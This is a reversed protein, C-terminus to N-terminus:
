KVLAAAEPELAALAAARASETQAAILKRASEKREDLTLQFFRTWFPLNRMRKTRGKGRIPYLLIPLKVCRGALRGIQTVWKDDYWFPFYGPFFHQLTELWRWGFIPYTSTD